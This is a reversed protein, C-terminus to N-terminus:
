GRFRFRDNFSYTAIHAGSCTRFLYSFIFIENQLRSEIGPCIILYKDAVNYWNNRNANRQKGESFYM